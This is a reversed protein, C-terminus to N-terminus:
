GSYIWVFRPGGVFGFRCLSTVFSISTPGGLAVKKLNVCGTTTGVPASCPPMTIWKLERLSSCDKFMFNINVADIQAWYVEDPPVFRELSTCGEFMKNYNKLHGWPMFLSNKGSMDFEVLSSCGYFMEETTQVSYVWGFKGVGTLSKCNAFMRKMTIISQGGNNLGAGLTILSRCEEFMSEMNTVDLLNLNNVNNISVLESLAHNTSSILPYFLRSSNEPANVENDFTITKVANLNGDADVIKKLFTYWNSKSITATKSTDTAAINIEGTSVTFTAKVNTGISTAAIDTAASIKEQKEDIDKGIKANEQPRGFPAGVCIIAIISILALVVILPM